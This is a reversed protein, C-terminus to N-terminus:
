KVSLSIVSFIISIRERVFSDMVVLLVYFRFSVQGIDKWEIRLVVYVFSILCSRNVAGKFGYLHRSPRYVLENGIEM